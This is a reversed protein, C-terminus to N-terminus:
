SRRRQAARWAHNHQRFRGTAKNIDVWVVEDGLIVDIGAQFEGVTMEWVGSNKTMDSNFYLRTDGPVDDEPRPWVVFVFSHILYDALDKLPLHTPEPEELRYHRAIHHYNVLDITGDFWFRPDPRQFCPCHRAPWRRDRAEDSLERCDLMKRVALASRMVFREVAICISPTGEGVRLHEELEYRSLRLDQKWSVGRYRHKDLDDAVSSLM